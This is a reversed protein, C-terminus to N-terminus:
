WYGGLDQGVHPNAAGPLQRLFEFGRGERHRSSLNTILNKGQVALGHFQVM